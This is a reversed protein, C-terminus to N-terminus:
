PCPHWSQYDIGGSVCDYIHRQPPPTPPPSACGTGYPILGASECLHAFRAYAVNKNDPLLTSVSGNPERRHEINASYPSTYTESNAIHQANSLTRSGHDPHNCFRHRQTSTDTWGDPCTDEALSVTAPLLVLLVVISVGILHQRM